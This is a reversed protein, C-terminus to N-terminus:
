ATVGRYLDVIRGIHAPAAFEEELLTRARRGMEHLRDRTEVLSRWAAALSRADGATFLAGTEGERVLEPIGGIRAGLVPKGLAFAELVAYPLNEYWESPVIVFAAGRVLSRLEAAEVYGRFDVPANAERARDMLTEGLPGEGLVVLRHDGLEGAAEVLTAVGKERSLRGAYLAYGGPTSDPVYADLPLFYPLHVLRDAAIGFDVCKDRMFRSPCFFVNVQEYSRRVAHWSMEVFGLVSKALSGHHCRQKVAEFHRAGRCRNCTTGNAFLLYSSCILKYDHLTQVIPIGAEALPKLISPTLQHAVNHLHAVDPRTREILKRIRDRAEGSHIFRRATALQGGLGRAGHFDVEDVFDSEGASPRNRPHRMSFSIVEHGAGTLAESLDFYYRESGGRLYHFKNVQLIRM